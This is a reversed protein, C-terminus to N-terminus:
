WPGGNSSKLLRARAAARGAIQGIEDLHDAPVCGLFTGWKASQVPVLGDHAVPALLSPSIILATSDLMAALPDVTDDFSQSHAIVNVKAAGTRALIDAIQRELQLSRTASLLGPGRLHRLRLLRALARDTRRGAGMLRLAGKM